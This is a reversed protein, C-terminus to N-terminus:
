VDRSQRESEERNFSLNFFLFLLPSYSGPFMLCVLMTPEHKAARNNDVSRVPTYHIEAAQLVEKRHNHKLHNNPGTAMYVPRAGPTNTCSASNRHACAHKRRMTAGNKTLFGQQKIIKAYTIGWNSHYIGIGIANCLAPNFNNQKWPLPGATIFEWTVSLCVPKM